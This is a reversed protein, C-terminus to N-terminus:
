LITDGQSEADDDLWWWSKRHHINHATLRAVGFDRATQSISEGSDMAARMARVQAKSLKGCRSRDLNGTRVAYRTNESHTGASLHGPNVCRRNNCSHMAVLSSPIPGGLALELSFRHAVVYRGDLLFSGYGCSGLAGIWPWCEDDGGSKDVKEWFREEPTRRKM